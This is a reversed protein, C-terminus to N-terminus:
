TVPERVVSCVERFHGSYIRISAQSGLDPGRTLDALDQVAKSKLDSVLVDISAVEEPDAPLSEELNAPYPAPLFQLVQWKTLQPSM